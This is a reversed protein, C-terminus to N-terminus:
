QDALHHIAPADATEGGQPPPNLLYCISFAFGLVSLVAVWLGMTQAWYGYSRRYHGWFLWLSVLAAVISFALLGWMFNMM